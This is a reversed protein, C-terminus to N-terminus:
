QMSAKKVQYKGLATIKVLMENELVTEVIDELGLHKMVVKRMTEYLPHNPNVNYEIKNNTKM